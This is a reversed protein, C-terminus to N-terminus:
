AKPLTGGAGSAAVAPAQMSNLLAVFGDVIQGIGANLATPDLNVKAGSSGLVAGVIPAVSPLVAAVVQKKKDPGSGGADEAKVVANLILGTIAGAAPNIATVVSPAEAESVNLIKKLNSLFGMRLEEALNYLNLVVYL